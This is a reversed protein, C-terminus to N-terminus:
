NGLRLQNDHKQDQHQMLQSLNRYCKDCQPCQYPYEPVGSSVYNGYELMPHTTIFQQMGRTGSAFRYIQQRANDRGTCGTCYGSEVHQVANAASGFRAEGCVPCSVTKPRHVQSHMRLENSSNFRRNCVECTYGIVCDACRSVGEGKRWQNSSYNDSSSWENCQSCVRSM